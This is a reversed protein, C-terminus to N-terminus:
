KILFFFCNQHQSNLRRFFFIKKKFEYLVHQDRNQTAEMNLALDIADSDISRKFLFLVTLLQKM